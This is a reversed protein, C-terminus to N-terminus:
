SLRGRSSTALVLLRLCELLRPRGTAPVRGPLRAPKLSLRVTGTPVERQLYKKNYILVFGVIYALIFFSFLYYLVGLRRDIIKVVQLGIAPCLTMIHHGPVRAHRRESAAWVRNYQHQLRVTQELHSPHM